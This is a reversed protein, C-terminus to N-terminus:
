LSEDLDRGKAPCYIFKSCARKAIPNKAKQPPRISAATPPPPSTCNGASKCAKGWYLKAVIKPVFLSATKAPLAEDIKVYKFLIFIAHFSISGVIIEANTNANKPAIETESTGLSSM